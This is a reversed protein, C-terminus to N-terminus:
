KDEEGNLIRVTPCPWRSDCHSCAPSVAWSGDSDDGEVEGHLALVREVRAALLDAREEVGLRSSAKKLGNLLERATPEQLAKHIQERTMNSKEDKTHYAM